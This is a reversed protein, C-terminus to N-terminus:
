NTGPDRLSKFYNETYEALKPHMKNDYHLLTEAYLTQLKASLPTEPTLQDLRQIITQIAFKQLANELKLANIENRLAEDAM